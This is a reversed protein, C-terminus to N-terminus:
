LCCRRTLEVSAMWFLWPPLRLEALSGSSEPFHWLCSSDTFILFPVDCAHCSLQFLSVAHFSLSSFWPCPKVLSWPSYAGLSILKSSLLPTKCSNICVCVCVSLFNQHAKWNCLPSPYQPGCQSQTTHTHTHTHTHTYPLLLSFLRWFYVFSCLVLSLLPPSM